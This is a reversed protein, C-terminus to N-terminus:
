AISFYFGRALKLSYAGIKLIIIRKKIARKAKATLIKETILNSDTIWSNSGQNLKLVVLYRACSPM